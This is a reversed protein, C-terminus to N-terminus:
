TSHTNTRNSNSVKPPWSGQQQPPHQTENHNHFIFSFHHSPLSPHCHFRELDKTGQAGRTIWHSNAPSLYREERWKTNVETYTSNLCVSKFLLTLYYETRWMNMQRRWSGSTSFLCVSLRISNLLVLLLENWPEIQSMSSRALLSAMM